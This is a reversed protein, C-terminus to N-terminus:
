AYDPDINFQFTYTPFEEELAATARKRFDSIDTLNFDVVVDFHVRSDEFHVHFAHMGIVSPSVTKLVKMVESKMLRVTPNSDNVAYMGFTFYIGLENLIENQAETMADFIEEGKANSPVEVNCTGVARTPGYSHIQIDYGGHLPPHRSIINRIERVTAKEPREGVISSVTGLVSRAGSYLIFISVLLGAWGDLNVPAIYSIVVALVTVSSSLADILSDTASARLADSDTKMAASRNAKWLFLKMFITILIIVIMMQSMYLDSPHIIKSISSSLLEFGAFLIIFSVILASLYEIRGFGLPHSHTPRRKAIINGIMTVFSSLIDGANNIGDSVIAVSGSLLGIVIKVAAMISNLAISLLSNRRIIRDRDMNLVTGSM